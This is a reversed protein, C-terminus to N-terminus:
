AAATTSAGSPIEARLENVLGTGPTWRFEAVGNADTAVTTRDLQGGGTVAASVPIGAYPLANVDTVRVRIPSALPVGPRAQQENGSIVSMQLVDGASVQIRAQTTDYRSDAPEATLEDVGARVGRLSFTAQRSGAPITVSAPVQANGTSSRLLVTLPVEGPDKLSVTATAAAGALLGAAPWLSVDLSRRLSTDASARGSTAQAFFQEFRKRYAEVRALDDASPEQGAATVLVFAFRFRRQSVTHDPTRRGEVAVIEEIRIDRRQGDFTVGTRPLGSLNRGQANTVLFTDPVEQAPLLGMLYQDLPSFAEVAGVTQFRPSAGPGNDRIRNGEMLSAESNFLFNWHSRNPNLMPTENAEDRVSAFALFLHGAEHALTTVPTDGVAFRAQVRGDPDAPYQSLPGMNLIAQLRRASGAESGADLRKDGYGTRSNRVTVEYAVAGAEAQVGQNNYFVLYDYSDEHNRYFKQAAAIIDLEELNTFREAVSYEYQTGAPANLFSIVNTLGEVRGASIGVVAEQTTVSGFAIDITGDPYLRIQFSQSPGAGSSRFEPVGDWTVEWAAGASSVTVGTGRPQSPDLDRFLAAIRPQGSSFRGLSRDTIEADGGGFTLNGDSNIWVRNYRQGFFPFSFPLTAERSDDDNLTVTSGTNAAYSAELLEVSYKTGSPKFKLTRRQLNFDNRRSLLGEGDEIIAIQGIDARLAASTELAATNRAKLARQRKSQRHLHLEERSKDGHTGCGIRDQKAPLLSACLFLTVASSLKRSMRPHVKM